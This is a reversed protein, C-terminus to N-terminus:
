SLPSEFVRFSRIWMLRCTLRPGQVQPNRIQTSSSDAGRHHNDDKLHYHRYINSKHHNQLRFVSFRYAGAEPRSALPPSHVLKIDVIGYSTQAWRTFGPVAQYTSLRVQFCRWSTSQHTNFPIVGGGCKTVFRCFRWSPKIGVTAAVALAKHLDQQAKKPSPVGIGDANTCDLGFGLAGDSVLISIPVSWRVLFGAPEDGDACGPWDRVTHSVVRNRSV